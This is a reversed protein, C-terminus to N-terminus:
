GPPPPAGNLPAASSSKSSLSRLSRPEHSGKAELKNAKVKEHRARKRRKATPRKQVCSAQRERERRAIIQEYLSFTFNFTSEALTQGEPWLTHVASLRASKTPLGLPSSLSTELPWAPRAPWSRVTVRFFVTYPGGPHTAPQTKCTMM